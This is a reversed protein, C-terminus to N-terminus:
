RRWSWGWHKSCGSRKSTEEGLGRAAKVERVAKRIEAVIAVSRLKRKEKHTICGGRWLQATALSVCRELQGRNYATAECEQFVSGVTPANYEDNIPRDQVGTNIGGILIDTTEPPKEVGNATFTITANDLAGGSIKHLITLSATCEGLESPSFTVDVNLAAGPDLQTTGLEPFTFGCGSEIKTSPYLTLTSGNENTLELPITKTDGMYVTGFDVDVGQDSSLGEGRALDPFFMGSVILAVFITLMRMAMRKKVM